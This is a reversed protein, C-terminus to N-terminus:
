MKDDQVDATKALDLQDLTDNLKTRFRIPSAIFQYTNVVEGTTIKITGYNFLRGLISQEVMVGECKVLRIESTNRQIIGKKVILRKNTIYYETNKSVTWVYIYGILLALLSVLVFVWIEPVNLAIIVMAVAWVVAILALGSAYAFWHLHGKHVIKENNTLNQEIFGMM